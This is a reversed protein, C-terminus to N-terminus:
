HVSFLFTTWAVTLFAFRCVVPFVSSCLSQCIDLSMVLNVQCVRCMYREVAALRQCSAFSAGGVCLMDCCFSGTKRGKRTPPNDPASVNISMVNRVVLGDSINFPQKPNANATM